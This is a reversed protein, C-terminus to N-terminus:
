KLIIMCNNNLSRSFTKDNSIDDCVAMRNVFTM